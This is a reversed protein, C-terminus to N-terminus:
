GGIDLSITVTTTIDGIRNQTGDVNFIAIPQSLKEKTLLLKDILEKSIFMGGAGLDLLANVPYPGVEKSKITIPIHMSQAKMDAVIVNYISLRPSDM